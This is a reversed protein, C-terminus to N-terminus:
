PTNLLLPFRNSRYVRFREFSVTETNPGAAGLRLFELAHALTGQLYLAGSCGMIKGNYRDYDAANKSDLMRCELLEAMRYWSTHSLLTRAPGERSCSSGGCVAAVYPLM